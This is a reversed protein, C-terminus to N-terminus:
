ASEVELQEVAPPPSVPQAQEGDTDTTPVISQEEGATTGEEERQETDTQVPQDAGQDEVKNSLAMTEVEGEVAEKEEGPIKFQDKGPSFGL